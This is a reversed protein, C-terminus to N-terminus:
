AAARAKGGAKRAKGAKSPAPRADDGNRSRTLLYNVLLGVPRGSAGKAAGGKWAVGAIDLHAWLFDSAFRQLFKAATVAGGARGSRLGGPYVATQRSYPHTWEGVLCEATHPAGRLPSNEVSSM